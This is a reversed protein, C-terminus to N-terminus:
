GMLALDASNFESDVCSFYLVLAEQNEENIPVIEEPYKMFEDKRINGEM